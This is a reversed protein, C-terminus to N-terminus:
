KNHERISCFCNRGIIISDLIPIEMLRGAEVLKEFTRLDDKSPNCEGSPHNHAVIVNKANCLLARQFIGRINILANDIGGHSVEFLGKINGATDTCMIFVYEETLENINFAERMIDAAIKASTVQIDMQLTKKKRLRLKGEKDVRLDYISVM